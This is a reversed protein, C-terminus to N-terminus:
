ASPIEHKITVALGIAMIPDVGKAFTCAGIFDGGWPVDEVVAAATTKDPGTLLLHTPLNSIQPGVFRKVVLVTAGNADKYVKEKDNYEFTGHKYMQAGTPTAEPQQGESAATATYVSWVLPEKKSSWPGSMMQTRYILVVTSGTAADTITYYSGPKMYPGEVHNAKLLVAGSVDKVEFANGVKVANLTGTISALGSWSFSGSFEASALEAKHADIVKASSGGCGM